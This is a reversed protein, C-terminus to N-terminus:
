TFVVQMRPLEHIEQLLASADSRGSTGARVDVLPGGDWGIDAILLGTHESAYDHVKCLARASSCVLYVVKSWDVGEAEFKAQLRTREIPNDFHALRLIAVDEGRSQAAKALQALWWARDTGLEFHNAHMM